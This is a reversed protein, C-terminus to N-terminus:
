HNWIATNPLFKFVGFDHSTIETFQEAQRLNEMLAEFTQNWWKISSSTVLCPQPRVYCTILSPSDACDRNSHISYREINCEGKALWLSVIYEIILCIKFKCAVYLWLHFAYNVSLSYPHTIWTQFYLNLETGGGGTKQMGILHNMTVKSSCLHCLITYKYYILWKISIQHWVSFPSWHSV